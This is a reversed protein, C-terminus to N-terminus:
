NEETVLVYRLQPPVVSYYATKPLEQHIQRKVICQNIFFKYGSCRAEFWPIPPELAESRAM